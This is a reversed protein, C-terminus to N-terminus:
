MRTPVDIGMTSLDAALQQRVYGLAGARWLRVDTREEALVPLAHYVANFGQAFFLDDENAAFLHPVGWKDVLIDVPRALGELAITEAPAPPRALAGISVALVALTAAISRNM